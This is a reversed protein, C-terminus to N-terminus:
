LALRRSSSAAHSFFLRGIEESVINTGISLRATLDLLNSFRGNPDRQCLEELSAGVKVSPLHALVDAIVGGGARADAGPLHILQHRLVELICALSRPNEEDMVVLDLLAAIERRRQYHARYTITSDFLDLILDFGPELVAAGDDFLTWLTGSMTSLRELQRGVTLLRWGDDRTMRDTQAGTIASLQMGLQELALLAEVTPYDGGSAARAMRTDFEEAASLVLRWHTPSLRDRIQGAANVMSRLNFGV